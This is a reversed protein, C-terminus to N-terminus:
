YDEGCILTFQEPTIFGKVVASRLKMSTVKGADYLRKLTEFM